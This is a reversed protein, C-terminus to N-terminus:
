EPWASGNIIDVFDARAFGPVFHALVDDNMTGFTTDPRDQMGETFAALINQKFNPRPHAAVVAAIEEATVQDLDMGLVDTEVGLSVLATEAELHNPIGPTTHLAIGLWVARADAASRGHDLLFDRAVDAGDVEFRQDARRYQETLGLDHFMAGVYLLEPDVAIGRFRGKLSAFLFVRRSHDYLLPPAAKRVLETADRALETDPIEVGAITETM